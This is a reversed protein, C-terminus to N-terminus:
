RISSVPKAPRAEPVDFYGIHLESSPIFNTLHVQFHDADIKEVKANNPTCFSVVSHAGSQSKPRGVILTFDEIPRRWTNASTLIFDVWETSVNYGSDQSLRGMSRITGRLFSPDPCFSMLLDEENQPRGKTLPKRRKHQGAQVAKFAQLSVFQFGVVPTYEHRIHTTSHAPFTQTWHYQLHATWRAFVGLGQNREPPDGLNQFLGERILQRKTPVSLRGFDRTVPGGNADEFHGLTPIDIGDARLLPTVNKGHFFASAEIKCAIPKGNVWVRFSQFTQDSLEREEFANSYPPIPFAVETTVSHDTDNRFDYDVIVKEPSIRLVERAMVIRTERRPVLGGAAISAASDDALGPLSLFIFAILTAFGFQGLKVNFNM